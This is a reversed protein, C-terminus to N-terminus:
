GETNVRRRWKRSYYVFWCVGALYLVYALIFLYQDLSHGAYDLSPQNGDIKVLLLYPFRTIIAAPLSLFLHVLFVKLPVKTAKRLLYWYAIAMILLTLSLFVHAIGYLLMRFPVITTHWGPVVSVAYDMGIPNALVLLALFILSPLRTEM